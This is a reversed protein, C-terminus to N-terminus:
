IGHADDENEREFREKLQGLARQLRTSVVSSSVQLAEAIERNSYGLLYRYELVQRYDPKLQDLYTMMRRVEDRAISQQESNKKEDVFVSDERDIGTMEERNERRLVDIAHNKVITVFFYDPKDCLEEMKNEYKQALKLFVDHVIDEARDGLYSSAVWLLRRKNETYIAYLIDQEADSLILLLVFVNFEGKIHCKEGRM